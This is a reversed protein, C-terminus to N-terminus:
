DNGTVNKEKMNDSKSEELFSKSEFKPSKKPHNKVREIDLYNKRL